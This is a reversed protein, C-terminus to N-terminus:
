GACTLDGTPPEATFYKVVTQDVCASKGGYAGHGEGQYTVLIGSELQRAMTQAYEYPTASDGTTGIVLIPKAGKAVPTEPRPAPPVPWTPCLYDPGFYRATIPAKTIDERLKRDAGAVGFDAKDLCRIAPFALMRTDYNGNPERGNYFDALNLLMRGDGTQAAQVARLLTRWSAERGYLNVIVGTVGISQTVKREGVQLPQSDLKDWLATISGIVADRNPGLSCKQRVCWDAFNGLARDFGQAQIVETDDTLSVASDLVLHGVKDPFMQAYRAGINTGYSYGLYNLQADNVLVRLLELDRVTEMTSVHQLLPGSHEACGAGFDKTAQLYAAREAEDDPSQDMAVYRDISQNDGCVVPTSDGTGRPDWGIIDYAELGTRAFRRALGKGPEGPGGPNVFITGLRPQATAPSKLMSLTIAQGDPAAYDLPAAVQACQVGEGCSTWEPTQHVYRDMGAGAPPDIFGNPKM